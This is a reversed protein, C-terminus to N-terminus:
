FSITYHPQRVWQDDCVLAVSLTDYLQHCGKQVGRVWFHALIAGFASFFPCFWKSQNEGNTNYYGWWQRGRNQIKKTKAIPCSANKQIVIGRNHAVISLWHVPRSKEVAKWPLSWEHKSFRLSFTYALFSFLLPYSPSALVLSVLSKIKLISELPGDFAYKSSIM